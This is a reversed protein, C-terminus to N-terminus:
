RIWQKPLFKIHNAENAMIDDALKVVKIMRKYSKRTLLVDHLDLIINRGLWNVSEKALERCQNWVEHADSDIPNRETMIKQTLWEVLTKKDMVGDNDERLHRFAVKSLKKRETDNM